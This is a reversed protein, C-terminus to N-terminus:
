QKGGVCHEHRRIANLRADAREAGSALPEFGPARNVAFFQRGAGNRFHLYDDLAQKRLLAEEVQYAVEQHELVVPASADCLLHRTIVLEMSHLHGDTLRQACGLNVPHIAWEASICLTAAFRAVPADAHHPM